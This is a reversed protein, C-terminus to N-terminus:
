FHAPSPSVYIMDYYTAFAMASAVQKIPKVDVQASVTGAPAVLSEQSLLEWTDFPAGATLLEGTVTSTGTCNAGTYFILLVVVEGQPGGSPIRVYTGFDYSQGATASICQTIGPGNLGM